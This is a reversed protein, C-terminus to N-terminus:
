ATCCGGGGALQQQQAKESQSSVAAIQRSNTPDNSGQEMGAPLDFICLLSLRYLMYVLPSVKAPELFAPQGVGKSPTLETFKPIDWASQGGSARQDFIAIRQRPKASGM